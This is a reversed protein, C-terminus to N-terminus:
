DLANLPALFLMSITIKRKLRRSISFASAAATVLPTWTWASSRRMRVPAAFLIQPFQLHPQEGRSDGDRAGIVVQHAIVALQHDDVASHKIQQGEIEGVEIHFAAAAEPDDRGVLLMHLLRCLQEFRIRFAQRVGGPLAVKM